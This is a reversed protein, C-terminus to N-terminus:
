QSSVIFGARLQAPKKKVSLFMPQIIGFHFLLYDLIIGQKFVANFAKTRFYFNGTFAMDVIVLLSYVSKFFCCGMVNM